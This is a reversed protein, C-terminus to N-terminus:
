RFPSALGSSARALAILTEAIALSREHDVVFLADKTAPVFAHAVGGELLVDIGALRPALRAAEVTLGALTDPDHAAPLALSVESVPQVEVDLGAVRGERFRLRALLSRDDITARLALDGPHFTGRVRRALARMTAPEAYAGSPALVRFLAEHLAAVLAEVRAALTLLAAEDNGPDDRSLSVSEDDVNWDFDPAIPALARLIPEVQTRERAKATHRADFAKVGTQLTGGVLADLLGARPRVSLALGLEPIMLSATLRTHDREVVWGITARTVGHTDEFDRRLSGHDSRWAGLKAAAQEVLAARRADGIPPPLLARSEAALVASEVIEISVEYLPAAPLPSFGARIPVLSLVHESALTEARFSASFADLAVRFPVPETSGAPIEVRVVRREPGRMESSSATTSSSSLLHIRQELRLEVSRPTPSALRAAVSGGLVGGSAVRQSELSLEFPDQPRSAVIVPRPSAMVGRAHVDLQWSAVADIWWPISVRAEIDYRVNAVGATLSPPAKAPLDFVVAIRATGSLRTAELARARQRPLRVERSVVTTGAGATWGERGDLTLEVWEVDIPEKAEIELEATFSEGVRVRPPLFLRLTPRTKWLAM